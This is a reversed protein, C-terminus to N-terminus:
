ILNTNIPCKGSARWALAAPRTLSYPSATKDVVISVYRHETRRANRLSM